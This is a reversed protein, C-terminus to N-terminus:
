LSQAHLIQWEIESVKGMLVKIQCLFNLISHTWCFNGLRLFLGIQRLLPGCKAKGSESEINLLTTKLLHWNRVFRPFKSAITRLWGASYEHSGTIKMWKWAEVEMWKNYRFLLITRWDQKIKKLRWKLCFTTGVSKMM